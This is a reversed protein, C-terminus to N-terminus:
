FIPIRGYARSFLQQLNKRFGELAAHMKKLLKKKM